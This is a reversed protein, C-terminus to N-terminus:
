HFHIFLEKSADTLQKSQFRIAKVSELKSEWRTEAWKKVTLQNCYKKLIDWRQTSSSFITNIREITGFFLLTTTSINVSDKILLNLNHAACPTFFARPNHNLIRSQVGNYQGIMNRGIDYAQGRCNQLDIVYHKLKAILINALNFGTTSKINIFDMFFENIRPYRIENEFEM